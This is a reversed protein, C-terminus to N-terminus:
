SRPPAPVPPLAEYRVGTLEESRRWLREAPEDRRTWPARWGAGPGGRLRRGGLVSPGTFSDATVEPATAAYLIPAAGVEPGAAFLRHATRALRQGTGGGADGADEGGPETEAFGPHVAAALLDAGAARARRALEHTFLLNAAKSRSHARWRRYRREPDLVGSGALHLLSSVTVVRAGPTALLQDLLLGTLAFHGLHSVGFQTEFGDATRGYAVPAPGANNILVDLPRDGYGAAFARVSSLDALDLLRLEARAEPVQALLRELARAGRRRDRCALITHAGRRALERATVFGPGGGAGTVVVTRGRLDPIDRVTWGM